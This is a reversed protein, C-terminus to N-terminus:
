FCNKKIVSINQTIVNITNDRARLLAWSFFTSFLLVNVSHHFHPFSGWRKNFQSSINAHLDSLIRNLSEMSRISLNEFNILKEFANKHTPKINREIGCLRNDNQLITFNPYVKNYRM